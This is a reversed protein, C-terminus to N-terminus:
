GSAIAPLARIAALAKTFRARWPWHLPARLVPTGSCNVLRAPMAVFKHRFTAMVTLQDDPHVQGAAATWRALNHAIVACALWAGNANFNGSPCHSLGSGEKIDRIALEVQAHDRHFQDLDVATGTLDTLFGHHRWTAFLAAQAPDVLRTRRVILRRGDYSAESVEAIGDPTYAIPAWSAEDIAAIAKAVATNATRVAMTYHVGLRGLTAITTNSWFGSDFRMVLEGSAGAKRARAVVEEVFHKAGRATNASGKRMRAHLVEGTGARVAVLPHYGLVKTYAYAAGTKARGYVQCVTSDVDIVVRQDGPGAALAWARCLLEGTAADLQRVHGFSFARLFTGLTSPAMVRHGLVRETAGSRLRDAHGIHSAGAVMAHVLSLVKRGPRFGGPRDNFRVMADVLGELGLRSAMTAVLVLGADAVLSPEDFVVKLRDLGRSVPRM